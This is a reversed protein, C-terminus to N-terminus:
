VPWAMDPSDSICGMGMVLQHRQTSSGDGDNDKLRWLDPAITVFMDNKRVLIGEAVDTVEENFDNLIRTSFIRWATVPDIKWSGSKTRRSLWIVGTTFGM